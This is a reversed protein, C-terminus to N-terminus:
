LDRESADSRLGLIREEWYEATGFAADTPYLEVAQRLAKRVLRCLEEVFQYLSMEDRGPVKVVPPAAGGHAIASRLDYGKKMYKFVSRKDEGDSELHVAARLSLRFGLEGRDEPSGIDKLFLAEACIMHDVIADELSTRDVAANFRRGCIAPLSRNFRARGKLTRWLTGAAEVTADDLDYSGHPIQRTSRTIWSRSSGMLSHQMLVVGPATVFEASALRLALLVDDAIEGYRWHKRDGFRHPQSLEAESVGLGSEEGPVVKRPKLDVKIRAGVCDDAELIPMGPFKPRLVGVGVAADIEDDTFQDIALGEELVVPFSASKLGPLPVLVTCHRVTATVYDRLEALNNEVLERSLAIEDDEKLVDRFAVGIVTNEDFRAAGMSSGLLWGVVPGFDPDDRIAQQTAEYTQSNDKHQHLAVATIPRRIIHRRAVGDEDRRWHEDETVAVQSSGSALATAVEELYAYVVGDCTNSTM